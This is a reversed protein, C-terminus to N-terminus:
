RIRRNQERHLLEYIEQQEEEEARRLYDIVQEKTLEPESPGTGSNSRNAWCRELYEKETM